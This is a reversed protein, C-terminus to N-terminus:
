WLDYPIECFGIERFYSWEMRREYVICINVMGSRNKAVFLVQYDANYDLDFYERTNTLKGTEPNRINKFVKVYKSSEKDKEESKLVRFMVVSHATETIARSKGVCSLDLYRKRLSEGSLQATCILAVNQKAALKFIEQSTKSFEQWQRDSGEDPAKLTDFFVYNYGIKSYKKVLKKITNIDYDYLHSFQIKGECDDLWKIALNINKLDEESYKGSQLHTKNMKKYGIENFLVMGLLLLRFETATQENGIILVNEGAKILPMVYLALGFTTKGANVNALLINFTSRHIGLLTYNLLPYAVKAGVAQGKSWYEVAEEYNKSLDEVELRTIKTGLSVDALKFEIYDMVEECTMTKFKEFDQKVNFGSSYLNLILNSKSLEDYYASDNSPDILSKAESIANYGGIEEFQNKYNPKSELFSYISIEDFNKHGLKYMERALTFLFIGDRTRLEGDYEDCKIHEYQGVMEPDAYMMFTFNGEVINRNQILETPFETIKLKM